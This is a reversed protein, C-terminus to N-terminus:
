VLSEKEVLLRTLNYEERAKATKVALRVPTAAISLSAGGRGFREVM